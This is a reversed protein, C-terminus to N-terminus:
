CCGALWSALLLLLVLPLLLVSPLLLLLLQLTPRLRGGGHAHEIWVGYSDQENRHLGRQGHAGDQAGGQSPYWVTHQPGLKHATHLQQRCDHLLM